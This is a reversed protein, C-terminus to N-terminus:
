WNEVIVWPYCSADINVLVASAASNAATMAPAKAALAGPAIAGVTVSLWLAPVVAPDLGAVPNSMLRRGNPESEAFSM